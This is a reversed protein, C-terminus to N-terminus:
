ATLQQLFGNFKRLINKPFNINNLKPAFSTQMLILIKRKEASLFHFRVHNTIHCLFELTEHPQFYVQFPVLWLMEWKQHKLNRNRDKYWEWNDKPHTGGAFCTTRVTYLACLIYHKICKLRWMRLVSHSCVLTQVSYYSFCFQQPMESIVCLRAHDYKFRALFCHCKIARSGPASFIDLNILTNNEMNFLRM